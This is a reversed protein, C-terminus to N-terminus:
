YEEHAPPYYIPMSEDCISFESQQASEFVFLDDISNPLEEEYEVCDVLQYEKDFCIEIQGLTQVAEGQSPSVCQIKPKVKYFSGIVSRINDLSYYKSSPVINFKKLISDLDVKKYLDLAKAFYKNESNLSEAVAACTGHKEWEHKWFENTGPHLVDPWWNEMEPLLDKIDNVNFHWSRNCSQGKDPWLGHITWYNFKDATQCSVEEMTCLTKPWHHTLILKTWQNEHRNFSPYSNVLVVLGFCLLTVLNLSAMTTWSSIGLHLWNNTQQTQM